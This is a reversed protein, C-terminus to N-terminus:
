LSLGSPALKIIIIIKMRIKDKKKGGKRGTRKGPESDRQKAARHGSTVWTPPPTPLEALDEHDWPFGHPAERGRSDWTGKTQAGHPHAPPCPGAGSAATSQPPLFLLM